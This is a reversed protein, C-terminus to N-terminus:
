ATSHQATSHQATSHQATSHQATSHQATSHQATSHQASSSRQALLYAAEHGGEVQQGQVHPEDDVPQVLHPGARMNMPIALMLLTHTSAWIVLQTKCLEGRTTKLPLEICPGHARKSTYINHKWSDQCCPPGRGSQKHGELTRHLEKAPNLQLIGAQAFGTVGKKKTKLQHTKLPRVALVGHRQKHHRKWRVARALAQMNANNHRWSDSLLSLIEHHGKGGSRHSPLAVLM